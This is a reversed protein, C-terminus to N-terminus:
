INYLIPWYKNLIWYIKPKNMFKELLQWWMQMEFECHEEINKDNELLFLVADEDNKVSLITHFYQLYNIFEIKNNANNFIYQKLNPLNQTQRIWISFSKPIYANIICNLLLSYNYIELPDNIEFIKPDIQRKAWYYLNMWKVYIPNKFFNKETPKKEQNYDLKIIDSYIKIIIREKQPDVCWIIKDEIDILNERLTLIHDLQNKEKNAIEQTKNIWIELIKSLETFRNLRFKNDLYQDIENIENIIMLVLIEENAIEWYKDEIQIILEKLKEAQNLIKEKLTDMIILM